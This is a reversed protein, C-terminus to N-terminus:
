QISGSFMEELLDYLGPHKERFKAPKEFFYESVVAFFEAENTLAYADIDSKGSAIRKMELHMLRIWPAIHHEALLYAPLGDTNGDTKDLLHVFEHIGTNRGDDAAFGNRLGKQSLLMQGNMYGTGVMGLTNRDAGEYQFDGNFTDPYLIVNTINPYQWGEFAFIPIIASAAVLVRDLPDPVMGVGEIRVYSLFGAVRQLFKEQGSPPLQKYFNVHEQLLVRYDTLKEPNIVAPKRKRGMLYLILLLVLLGICIIVFPM